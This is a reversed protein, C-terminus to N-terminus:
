DAREVVIRVSYPTIFSDGTQGPQRIIGNAEVDLVMGFPFTAVGERIVAKVYEPGTWKELDRLISDARQHISVFSWDM